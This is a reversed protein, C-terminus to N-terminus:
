LTGDANRAKRRAPHHILHPYKVAPRFTM